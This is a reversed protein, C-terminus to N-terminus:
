LQAPQLQRRSPLHAYIEYTIINISMQATRGVVKLRVNFVTNQITYVIVLKSHTMQQLRWSSYSKVPVSKVRNEVGACHAIPRWQPSECLFFRLCIRAGRWWHVTISLSVTRLATIFRATTLTLWMDIISDEKLQFDYVSKVKINRYHPKTCCIFQLDHGRLGFTEEWDTCLAPIFVYCVLGALLKTESLLYLICVCVCMIGTIQFIKVTM